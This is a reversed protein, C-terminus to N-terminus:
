TGSPFPEGFLKRWKEISSKDEMSLFGKCYDAIKSFLESFKSKKEMSMYEDASPSKSGPIRISESVKDKGLLFFNYVLSPYSVRWGQDNFYKVVYPIIDAALVELHYSKMNPLLNRKAAKLMKITPILYGNSKKNAESICEADYDYDVSVWRNRKPIRYGRGRPEYIFDKWAPVFEVKVSDKYEFVVTPSDTEPGLKEYTGHEKVIDELKDLAQTPTIGGSDVQRHFEGFIVLIDIDFTDKSRPQIRTKRQLSGILKTGIDPNYSEIWERVANHHTSIADQFSQSLELKLKFENFAQTITLAM